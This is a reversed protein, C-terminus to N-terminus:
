VGDLAFDFRRQPDAVRVRIGRLQREKNTDGEHAMMLEAFQATKVLKRYLEDSMITMGPRIPEAM